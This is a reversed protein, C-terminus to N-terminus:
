DFVVNVDDASTPTSNYGVITLEVTAIPGNNNLVVDTVQAQPLNLTWRNYQASGFKLAFALSTAKDRLNYPDFASGSTYPAGTLATAELVVKVMPARDGPTYGLHAGAASLAVRPNDINRALDFSGSMVVANVALGGLTLAIASALPAQVAQLPYTIAPVAADTPLTAIGRTPFTWIPPEPNSFDFKANCIAGAIAWLEGRTYLGLSLSTFATTSVTPAYTWSEVGAGIAVTADFGAAKLMRHISPLVTASYAAGGPRARTPLDGEISYGSPSVRKVQGLAGVSPGLSGDYSYKFNMPAGVHRDKYQLQVGDTAPTLAIATGYTAEEKAVLGLVQLLKAPTPM